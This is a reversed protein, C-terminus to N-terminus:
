QLVTGLRAQNRLRGLRFADDLPLLFADDRAGIWREASEPTAFFHVHDCFAAIAEEVNCKKPTGDSAVFSVLPSTPDAFDIGSPSVRLRISEGTTPDRSEIDATAGLIHPLFLTDWACWAYLSRDGVRLRHATPNLSLGGFGVVEGGDNHVVLDRFPGDDFLQDIEAPSRDTATALGARSVPRGGALARYLGLAVAQASASLAPMESGLRRLITELDIDRAPASATGVGSRYVRYHHRYTSADFEGEWLLSASSIHRYPGNGDLVGAASLAWRKGSEPRRFFGLTDFTITEGDDTEIVGRLNADCFTPGQNEFLDWRVAGYLGPGIAEGHGSGIYTGLRPEERTVREADQRYVLDLEFLLDHRGQSDSM